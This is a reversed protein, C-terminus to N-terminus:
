KPPEAPYAYVQGGNTFAPPLADPALETANAPATIPPTSGLDSYAFKMTEGRTLDVEQVIGDAGAVMRLQMAPDSPDGLRHSLIAWMLLNDSPTLLTDPDVSSNPITGTYVTTGDAQTTQEIGTALALVQDASNGAVDNRAMRVKTALVAPVNNADAYHFWSGDDQQVFVGGGVILFGQLPSLVKGGTLAINGDNWETTVQGFGGGLTMTGSSAAETRALAKRAAAYASPASGTLTLGIVVAATAAAVVGLAPIAVRARPTRRHLDRTVADRLQSRYLLLEDPIQTM